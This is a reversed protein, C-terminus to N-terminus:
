AERCGQRQFRATDADFGAPTIADMVYTRGGYRVTCVRRAATGSGPATTPTGGHDRCLTSLDADARSAAEPASRDLWRPVGFPILVLALVVMLGAKRAASRRPSM